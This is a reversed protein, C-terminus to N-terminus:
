GSPLFMPIRMPLGFISSSEAGIEETIITAPELLTTMNLFLIFYLLLLYTKYYFVILKHLQPYPSKLDVSTFYLIPWNGM